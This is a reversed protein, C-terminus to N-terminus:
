KVPSQQRAVVTPQRWRNGPLRATAGFQDADAFWCCRQLRRSFNLFGLYFFILFRSRASRATSSLVM